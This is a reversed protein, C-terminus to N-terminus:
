KTRNTNYEHIFQVLRQGKLGKARGLEVPDQVVPQSVGDRSIKSRQKLASQQAQAQAQVQTAKGINGRLGKNEEELRIVQLAGERGLQPMLELFRDRNTELLKGNEALFSQATTRTSQYQEFQSFAQQIANEVRAQVRQEIFGEPDRAFEQRVTQDHQVWQNHFQIDENSVGLASATRAKIDEHQESTLGPVNANAAVAASFHRVKELRSMAQQHEPHKPHWAQLKQVEAERQRQELTSRIEDPSPLGQYAELQKRSQGLEQAQRGYLSKLNLLQKLEEPKLQPLAEGTASSVNTQANDTPLSGANAESGSNDVSTSEQEPAATETPESVDAVPAADVTDADVPSDTSDPM